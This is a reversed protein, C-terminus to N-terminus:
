HNKRLKENLQDDSDEVNFIKYFERKLGPSDFVCKRLAQSRAFKVHYAKEIKVRYIKDM